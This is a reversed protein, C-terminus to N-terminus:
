GYMAVLRISYSNFDQLNLQLELYLLFVPNFRPNPLAYVGEYSSAFTNSLATWRLYLWHALMSTELFTRNMLRLSMKFHFFYQSLVIGNTLRNVHIIILRTYRTTCVVTNPCKRIINSRVCDAIKYFHNEIVTWSLIFPPAPQYITYM